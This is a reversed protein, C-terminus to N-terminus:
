PSTATTARAMKPDEPAEVELGQMLVSLDQAQAQQRAQVLSAVGDPMGTGEKLCHILADEGGDLKTSIGCAKFFRIIVDEKVAEFADLVWKWCTRREGMREAAIRLGQGQDHTM